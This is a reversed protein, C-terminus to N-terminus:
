NRVRFVGEVVNNLIITVKVKPWNVEFDILIMKIRHYILHEYLIQFVKTQNGYPCLPHQISEKRWITSLDLIVLELNSTPKESKLCVDVM